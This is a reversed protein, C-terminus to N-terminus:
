RLDVLCDFRYTCVAGILFDCVFVEIKVHVPFLKQILVQTFCTGDLEERNQAYGICMAVPMVM